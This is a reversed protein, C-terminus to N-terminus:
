TVLFNQISELCGKASSRCLQELADIDTYKVILLTIRHRKCLKITDKDREQQEKFEKEGGRHFHPIHSHQEQGNFEFAVKMKESFGDLELGNM